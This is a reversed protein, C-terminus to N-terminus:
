VRAVIKKGVWLVKKASGSAESVEGPKYERRHVDESAHENENVHPQRHALSEILAVRFM